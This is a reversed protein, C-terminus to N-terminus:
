SHCRILHKALDTCIIHVIIICDFQKTLFNLYTIFKLQIFQLLLFGHQAYSILDGSLLYDVMKKCIVSKM